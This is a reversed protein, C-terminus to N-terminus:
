MMCDLYTAYRGKCVIAVVAIWVGLQLIGLETGPLCMEVLRLDYSAETFLDHAQEFAGLRATWFLRWM